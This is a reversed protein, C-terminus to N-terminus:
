RSNVKPSSCRFHVHKKQNPKTKTAPSIWYRGCFDFDFYFCSSSILLSLSFWSSGSDFCNTKKIIKYLLQFRYWICWINLNCYGDLIRHAFTHVSHRTSFQTKHFIQRNKRCQKGISTKYILETWFKEM